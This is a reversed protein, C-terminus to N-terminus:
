KSKKDTNGDKQIKGQLWEDIQCLDFRIVKGVKLFPIRKSRIWDRITPEKIGVYTSLFKIDVYRRDPIVKDVQVVQKPLDNELPMVFERKLEMEGQQILLEIKINMNDTGGYV